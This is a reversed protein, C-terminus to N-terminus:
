LSIKLKVRDDVFYEDIMWPLIPFIRAPLIKSPIFM